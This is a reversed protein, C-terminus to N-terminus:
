PTPAFFCLFLCSFFVYFISFKQRFEFGCGETKFYLQRSVSSSVCVLGLCFWVQTEALGVRGKKKHTHTHTQTHARAGIRCYQLAHM